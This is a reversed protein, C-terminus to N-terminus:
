GAVTQIEQCLHPLTGNFIENFLLHELAADPNKRPATM